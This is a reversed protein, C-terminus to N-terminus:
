RNKWITGNRKFPVEPEDEFVPYSWANAKKVFEEMLCYLCEGPDLGRDGVVSGCEVCEWKPNKNQAMVHPADLIQYNRGKGTNSFDEPCDVYYIWGKM